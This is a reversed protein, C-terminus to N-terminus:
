PLGGDETAVAKQISELARKVSSQVFKDPHELAQNLAPIATKALPGIQELAFATSSLIGRHREETLFQILVPIASEVEVRLEALTTAAELRVSPDLDKLANVLAQNVVDSDFNARGLSSVVRCRVTTDKDELAKVLAEKVDDRNPGVSSVSSAASMRVMPDLDQLAETLAPVAEEAQEGYATTFGLGRDKPDPSLDTLGLVDPEDRHISLEGLNAEARGEADLLLRERTADVVALADKHLKRHHQRLAAM